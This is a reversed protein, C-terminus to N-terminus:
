LVQHVDVRAGVVAQAVLARARQSCVAAEAVLGRLAHVATLQHAAAASVVLELGVLVLAAVALEVPAAVDLALAARREDVLEDALLRSM